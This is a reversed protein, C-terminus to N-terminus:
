SFVGMNTATSIIDPDIGDDEKTTSQKDNSGRLLPNVGYGVAAGMIGAKVGEKSLLKSIFDALKGLVSDISRLMIAIVGDGKFRKQLYTAANQLQGKLTPIKKQLYKLGKIIAPPANKIGQKKIITASTKFVKGFGSTLVASLIDGMLHFYPSEKIDADRPDFDNTAIEYIDLLVIIFWFIANTKVALISVVIDIMMGLNTYAGRRLWRLFPIVGKKFVVELGKLVSGGVSSIGSKITDWIGKEEEESITKNTNIWESVLEKTWKANKVIENIENYVSESITHKIKTFSEQIIENFIHTNEWISGISKGNNGNVFVEDMIILYKQNETLVFDFVYKESKKTREYLGLIKNRESENILLKGNKYM